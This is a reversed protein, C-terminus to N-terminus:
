RRCGIALSHVGDLGLRRLDEAVAGPALTAAPGRFDKEGWVTATAAPGCLLSQVNGGWDVLQTRPLHQLEAWAAPGFFIDHEGAPSFDPRAFLQVWCPSVPPRATSCATLLLLFLPLLRRADRAPAAAGTLRCLLGTEPAAKM